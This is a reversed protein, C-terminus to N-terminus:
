FLEVFKTLDEFTADDSHLLAHAAKILPKRFREPINTKLKDSV